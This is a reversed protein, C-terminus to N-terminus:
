LAAVRRALLVRGGYVSDCSRVLARVRRGVGLYPFGARDLGGMRTDAVLQLLTTRGGATRVPVPGPTPTVAVTATVRWPTGCSTATVTNRAAWARHLPHSALQPLYGRALYARGDFAVALRAPVGAIRHLAVPTDPEPPSIDAGGADHVVTDKCGPIVGGAIAAADRAALASGSYAQGGFQVSLACSAHAPAAPLLAILGFALVLIPRRV